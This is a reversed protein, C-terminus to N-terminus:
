NESDEDSSGYKGGVGGVRKKNIKMTIDKEKKNLAKICGTKVLRRVLLLTPFEDVGGLEEFGDIRDFAVGDMFCIVCPLMQIALKNVFFPCKEADLKAFKSEVHTRSITALHMDMIKCREFDKHYFHVVAFKSKTVLPLFEDEVIETYQGHGKQMNEIHENQKAKMANIRDMRLTQMIADDDDVDFDSDEDDKEEEEEAEMFNNINEYQQNEKDQEAEVMATKDRIADEMVKENFLSSVKNMSAGVTEQQSM